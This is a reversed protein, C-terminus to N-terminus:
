WRIRRVWDVPKRGTERCRDELEKSLNENHAVVIYGTEMNGVM